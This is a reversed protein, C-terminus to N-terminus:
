VLYKRQVGYKNSLSVNILQMIILKRSETLEIKLEDCLEYCKALANEAVKDPDIYVSSSYELASLVVNSILLIKDENKLNLENIISVSLSFIQQVALLDEGSIVNDKKLRNVGLTLGILVAVVVFAYLINLDM